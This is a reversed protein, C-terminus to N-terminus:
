SVSSEGTSGFGGERVGQADDQDAVLYTEFIGQSIRTGAPIFVPLASLNILPIMIHGENDENNFYDKDVIGTQNALALGRKAAMSSRIYLKLVEGKQMYAKIGTKVLTAKVQEKDIAEVLEGIVKDETTDKPVGESYVRNILSELEQSLLLANEMISPIVVDEITVFDYGASDETGRKPIQVYENDKFKSVVEFGRLKGM